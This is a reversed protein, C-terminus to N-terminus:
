ATLVIEQVGMEELLQVGMGPLVGMEVMVTSQILVTIPIARVLIGELHELGLLQETLLVTKEV